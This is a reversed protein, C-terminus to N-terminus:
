LALRSQWRRPRAAHHVPANALEETTVDRLCAVNVAYFDGLEDHNGRGFPKV